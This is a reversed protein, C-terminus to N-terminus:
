QKTMQNQEEKLQVQEKNNQIKNSEPSLKKESAEESKYDMIM